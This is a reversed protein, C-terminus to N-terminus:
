IKILIYMFLAFEVQLSFKSYLLPTYLHCAWHWHPPEPKFRFGSEETSLATLDHSCASGMVHVWAPNALGSSFEYRLHPLSPLTVQKLMYSKQLCRILPVSQRKSTIWPLSRVRMVEIWFCVSQSTLFAPCLMLARLNPIFSHLLPSLPDAPCAAWSFWPYM